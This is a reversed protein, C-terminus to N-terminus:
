RGKNFTQSAQYQVEFCIFYKQYLGKKNVYFSLFLCIASPTFSQIRNNSAWQKKAKHACEILLFLKISNDIEPEAKLEELIKENRIIEFSSSDHRQMASDKMMM